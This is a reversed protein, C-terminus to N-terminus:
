LNDLGKKWAGPGVREYPAAVGHQKEWNITTRETIPGFSGDVTVGIISQWVKVVRGTMGRKLIPMTVTVTCRGGAVDTISNNPQLDGPDQPKSPEQSILKRNLIGEAIARGMKTADWRDYDEKSDVFACEVLVARAKTKNLVYLKTNYKAGRNRYGLNAVSASIASCEKQMAVSRGLVEVGHGGGANLHISIDLDVTHANCKNVIYKLVGSQNLGEECTCDYVTHGEMKLFYILADKVARAESSENLFGNAGTAGGSNSPAHGAHVNYTAM